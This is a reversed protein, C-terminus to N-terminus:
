HIKFNSYFFPFFNNILIHSSNILSSKNCFERLNKFGNSEHDVILFNPCEHSNRLM